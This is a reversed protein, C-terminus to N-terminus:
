AHDIIGRIAPADTLPLCHCHSDITHLESEALASHLYEACAYTMIMDSTAHIIETQCKLQGLKDRLDTNLLYDLGAKLIQPPYKEALLAYENALQSHQPYADLAFCNASFAELLDQTRKIVQLRMAKIERPNAGSYNEDSCMRACSGILVLRQIKDSTVEACAAELALMGGISWGILTVPQEANVIAQTLIESDELLTDWNILTAGTPALKSWVSADSGWGNIYIESM